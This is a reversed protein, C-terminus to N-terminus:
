DDSRRGFNQTEKVAMATGWVGLATGAMAFALLITVVAGSAGEKVAMTVVAAVFVSVTVWAYVRPRINRRQREPASALRRSDVMSM